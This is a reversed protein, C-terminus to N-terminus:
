IVSAHKVSDVYLLHRWCLLYYAIQHKSRPAFEKPEPNKKKLNPKATRGDQKIFFLSIIIIITSIMFIIIISFSSFFNVILNVSSKERIWKETKGVKKQFLFAIIVSTLM